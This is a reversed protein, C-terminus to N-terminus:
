MPGQGIELPQRTTDPTITSNAWPGVNVQPNPPESRVQLNANRMSSGVTNIGVHHGADLVSPTAGCGPMSPNLQCFESNQGGRPLLDQPNNNPTSNSQIQGPGQPSRAGLGPQGNGMPPRKGMLPGKGMPPRKGMLPGKGMPPRPRKGMPPRKAMAGPGSMKESVTGKRSSYLGIALTLVLLGVLLLKHNANLTKEIDKLISM